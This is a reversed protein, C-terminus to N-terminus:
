PHSTSAATHYTSSCCVVATNNAASTHHSTPNSNQSCGHNDCSNTYSMPELIFLLQHIPHAAESPHGHAIAMRILAALTAQEQWMELYLGGNSQKPPKTKPPATTTTTKHQLHNGSRTCSSCSTQRSFLQSFLSQSSDWPCTAFNRIRTKKLM